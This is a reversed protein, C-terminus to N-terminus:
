DASYTEKIFFSLMISVIACFPLVWLFTYFHPSEKTIFLYPIFLLLTNFLFVSSNTISIAIGRTSNSSMESVMTYILMSGSLMFGTFFSVAEIIYYNNIMYHPLYVAMLLGMTGLVLTLHLVLKRSKIRNSIWGLLPTGVGIGFFVMGGILVATSSNVSYYEQIPLYWLGGYALLIGFSTAATFACLWTQGNNCVITLSAKLSINRAFQFDEPTKVWFMALIFLCYGYVAFYQYIQNWSYTQLKIMLFYHILGSAIFALTEILGTLIPFMNRPFWQAVLISAAIFDFSAGMGQILNALCYTYINTSFSIAVNGSAVLFLASSVIYRANYRDLLYGAPIQMCAFGLIFSGAAFSVGMDSSHLASKISESFVAGATNLCFAYIVFLTSIFWVIVGQISKSM